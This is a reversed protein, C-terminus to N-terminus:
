IRGRRPAESASSPDNDRAGRTSLRMAIVTCARGTFKRSEERDGAHPLRCERAKKALMYRASGFQLSSFALMVLECHISARHAKRRSTADVGRLATPRSNSIDTRTSQPRVPGNQMKRSGM